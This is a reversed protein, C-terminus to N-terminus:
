ALLGRKVAATVCIVREMPYEAALQDWGTDAEDRAAVQVGNGFFFVRYLEHGRQLVARCFAQASHNGAADSYVVISFKM